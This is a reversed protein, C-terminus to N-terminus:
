GLFSRPEATMSGNTLECRHGSQSRSRAMCVSPQAWHCPSALPRATPRDLQSQGLSGRYSHAAALGSHITSNEM